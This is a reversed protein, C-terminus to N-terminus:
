PCCTDQLSEARWTRVAENAALAAIALGAAPDAWWWGFGANAGLGALLVVSLLACLDTQAADAEVARSGLAPALRRKARALVPMVTVSMAALVVGVPSAQPRAGTVLDLLSGAAVYVALAAFSAAIARTARRDDDQMCGGQRERSLRWALIFAASVEIGSDLGFGVLSVSGAVLGAIVAVFGEVVNWGITVVNLRQARRVVAERGRAMAPAADSRAGTVPPQDHAHGDGGPGSDVGLRADGEPM